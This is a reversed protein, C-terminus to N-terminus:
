QDLATVGDQVVIRGCQRLFDRWGNSLEDSTAQLLLRSTTKLRRAIQRKGQLEYPRGRDTSSTLKRPRWRRLTEPKEARKGSGGEQEAREPYENMGNSLRSTAGAKGLDLLDSEPLAVDEASSERRFSPEDEARSPIALRFLHEGARRSVDLEL